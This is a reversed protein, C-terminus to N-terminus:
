AEKKVKLRDLEKIMNQRIEETKKKRNKENFDSITESPMLHVDVKGCFSSMNPVPQKNSWIKSTGYIVVPVLDAHTKMAFLFPGSKFPNIVETDSRTGEPAIMFSEGEKVLDEARKYEKISKKLDKSIEITGMVRGVQGIIPIKFVYSKAAFNFYKGIAAFVIPIDLFSAHSFIFVVGRDKPLNELGSVSLKVGTILCFLKGWIFPIRTYKFAVRKGFLLVSFIFISGLVFTFFGIFILRM